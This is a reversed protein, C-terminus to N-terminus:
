QMPRVVIEVGDDSSTGVELLIRRSSLGYAILWSEIRGGWVQGTEGGPYHVVLGLKQDVDLKRVLEALGPASVLEASTNMRSLTEATLVVSDAGNAKGVVSVLFLFVTSVILLKRSGANGAYHINFM